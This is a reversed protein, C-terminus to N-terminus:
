EKIIRKTIKYTIPGTQIVRYIAEDKGLSKIYMYERFSLGTEPDKSIFIHWDSLNNSLNDAKCISDFQVKTFEREFTNMMIPKGYTTEVNEITDKNQNDNVVVPVTWDCSCFIFLSILIIIFNKM